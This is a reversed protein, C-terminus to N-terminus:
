PLEGPSESIAVGEIPGAGSLQVQLYRGTPTPPLEFPEESSIARANVVLVDDVWLSFTVPYTSAVVRAWGANIPKPFRFKRSKFLATQTTGSRWKNIPTTSGSTAGILYLNESLSDEFVGYGGFDLWMIGVPNTTDIMFSLTPSVIGVYYRGWCAGIINAPTLARWDEPSIIGETLLRTGLQGHYALGDNSAWCVGHGVGKVSRRSVGAQKWYIPVDSLKATSGTLLRPYGTTVLLIQQGWKAAGVITDPIVGRYKLPWAHHKFPVSCQWSNGVFGFHFGNWAEMLGILNDPPTLWASGPDVDERAGTELTAGQVGTYTATTTGAAQEITRLFSGTGTYVYIRRKTIGHSGSPVPSLNSIAVTSGGKVTISATAANPASEDNNARLFTDTFVLTQDTGTGAVGLALTMAASPAPVGTDVTATPHPHSGGINTSDFYKPKVGDTLYTRETTDGALMSRAYDVLASSSVWTAVDSLTDRGWRYLSLRQGTVGTINTVLGPAKQGRMDGHTTDINRADVGVGDPLKKPNLNSNAAIFSGINVLLAM